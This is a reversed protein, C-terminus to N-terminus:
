DRTLQQLLHFLSDKLEKLEQPEKGSLRGIEIPIAQAKEKLGLGKDTISIMVSREDQASRERKILNNLEMRKLMPTLTGSDLYLKQGIEKVSLSQHEWLILLALYQPYTIHLEELLPKYKKTMERSSAYLLFCLQNELKLLEM